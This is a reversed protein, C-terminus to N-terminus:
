GSLPRTEVRLLDRAFRLLLSPRAVLKSLAYPLYSGGYPVYVRVDIQLRKALLLSGQMPWGYLLEQNCRTGADRLCSIAADALNM